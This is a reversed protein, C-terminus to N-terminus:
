ISPFLFTKSPINTKCYSPLKASAQYKNIAQQIKFDSLLLNLRQSILYPHLEKKNMLSSSASYTLIINKCPLYALISRYDPALGPTFWMFGYPTNIRFLGLGYGPKESRSNLSTGKTLSVLELM